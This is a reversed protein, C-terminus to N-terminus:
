ATFVILKCSLKNIGTPGYIKFLKNTYQYKVVVRVPIDPSNPFIAM